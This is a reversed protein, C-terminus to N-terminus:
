PADGTALCAVGELVLDPVATTAHRLLPMLPPGDGGALLVTPTAGLQRTQEDLVRDIAGALGFLTGAAVADATSRALCDRDQGASAGVGETGQRLAARQLALGPLIVGGRFVGDSDLADITVATGADVICAAGRTRARAAVLAAWRDAGLRHPERYSNIVGCQRAPVGFLELAVGWRRELWAALAEVRAGAAVSVAAARAPRPLAALAGDLARAFDAGYERAEGPARLGNEALAWKWRSNGLDFVLLTM